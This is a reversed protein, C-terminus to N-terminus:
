DKQRRAPVGPHRRLRLRGQQRVHLGQGVLEKHYIDVMAPNLVLTTKKTDVRRLGTLDKEQVHFGFADRGATDGGAAGAAEVEGEEGSGDMPETSPARGESGSSSGGCDDSSRRRFESGSSSYQDDSM